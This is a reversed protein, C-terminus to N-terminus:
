LSYNQVISKAVFKNIERFIYKIKDTTHDM